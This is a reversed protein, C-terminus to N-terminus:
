RSITTPSDLGANLNTLAYFLVESAGFVPPNGFNEDM